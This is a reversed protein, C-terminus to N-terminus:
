YKKRYRETNCDGIVEPSLHNFKKQHTKLGQQTRYKKLCSDDPCQFLKESRFM